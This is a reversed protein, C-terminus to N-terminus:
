RARVPCGGRRMTDALRASARSRGPGWCTRRPRRGRRRHRPGPSPRPRPACWCPSLSTRKRHQKGRRRRFTDYGAMPDRRQRARRCAGAPYGSRRPTATNDSASQFVPDGAKAKAPSSSANSVAASKDNGDLTSRHRPRLPAGGSDGLRRAIPRPAHRRSFIREAALDPLGRHQRPCQQASRSRRRPGKSANWNSRHGYNALSGVLRM